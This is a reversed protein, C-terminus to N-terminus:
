EKGSIVGEKIPKTAEKHYLATLFNNLKGVNADLEEVTNNVILMQSGQIVALEKVAEIKINQIREIEDVSIEPSKRKGKLNRMQVRQYILEPPAAIFVYGFPNLLKEIELNYIYRGNEPKVVHCVAVVPQIQLVKHCIAFQGELIRDPDVTSMMIDKNVGLEESLMDGWGVKNVSLDQIAKDVLFDKGVGTMGTVIIIRNKNM